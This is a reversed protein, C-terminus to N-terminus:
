GFYKNVSVFTYAKMWKWGTKTQQTLQRTPRERNKSLFLNKAM